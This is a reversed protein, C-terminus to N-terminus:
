NHAGKGLSRTEAVVLNMSILTYNEEEHQFVVKGKAKKSSWKVISAVRSYKNIKIVIVCLSEQLECLPKSRENRPPEGRFGAARLNGYTVATEPHGELHYTLGISKCVM